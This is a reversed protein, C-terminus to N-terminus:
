RQGEDREDEKKYKNALKEVEKCADNYVYAHFWERNKIEEAITDEEILWRIDDNVNDPKIDLHGATFYYLITYENSGFSEKYVEVDELRYRESEIVNIEDVYEHIALIGSISVGKVRGDDEYIAERNFSVAGLLNEENNNIRILAM